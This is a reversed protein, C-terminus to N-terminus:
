AAVKAPADRRTQRPQRLHNAWTRGTCREKQIASVDGALIEPEVNAQNDQREGDVGETLLAGTLQQNPASPGAGASPGLSM